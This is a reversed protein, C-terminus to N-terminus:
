LKTNHKRKRFERAILCIAFLVLVSVFLLTVVTEIMQESNVDYLVREEGNSSVIVLQSYSSAFFNLAGMENRVLYDVEGVTKRAAFVCNNWYSNNHQSNTIKVIREVEGLLNISIFIDSRVLYLNLNGGCFEVGFDGTTKFTYGYQFVADNDYICVTKEITDGFGIAINGNKDVDFCKIAQREPEEVLTSLKLSKLVIEIDKDNLQETFFGSDTAYVDTVFCSIVFVHMVLLVFLIRISKM